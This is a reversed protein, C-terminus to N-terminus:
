KNRVIRFGLSNDSSSPIKSYRFSVRAYCGNDLWSGGRLVRQYASNYLIYPNTLSSLKYRGYWDTCWEWVNGSMDYLGLENAKKLGVEHTKKSGKYWAVEDINNSGSYKYDRSKNGGKEAYEWEAEIPLRYGKVQTIDTTVNGNLDLLDGTNENYAIALNEKRSLTNCYKIADFWTVNDVPLNDGSFSSPNTEMLSKYEKQTVEYKGIYFDNTLTVQRVPKEWDYGDGFTDGMQFSGGNVLVMQPINVALGRNDASYAVLNVMLILLLSILITIKKM